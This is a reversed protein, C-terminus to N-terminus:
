PVGFEIRAAVGTNGPYIHLKDGYVQAVVEWGHEFRDYDDYVAQANDIAGEWDKRPDDGNLLAQICESLQGPNYEYGTHAWIVKGGEIGRGGFVFMALGGGNDEIINAECSKM